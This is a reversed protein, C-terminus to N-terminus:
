AVSFAILDPQYAELQRFVEKDNSFFRALRTFERTYGDKFLTPTHLLKVDHGEKKAIASLLSIALCEHAINFFAIKM